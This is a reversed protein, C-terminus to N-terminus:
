IGNRLENIYDRLDACKEYHEYEELVKLTDLAGEIKDEISIDPYDSLNVLFSLVYYEDLMDLANEELILVRYTNLAAELTSEEYTDTYM